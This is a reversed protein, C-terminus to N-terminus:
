NHQVVIGTYDSASSGISGQKDIVLRGAPGPPGQPGTLGRPGQEGRMGIGIPGPDGKPGREGPEGDVGDRGPQGQPGIMTIGVPWGEATKPGYITWHVYDIYFAGETGFFPSPPATGSLIGVGDKGDKGPNGQPGREGVDGKPGDKGRPGEVGPVGNKGPVGPEGQPGPPAAEPVFAFGGTIPNFRLM